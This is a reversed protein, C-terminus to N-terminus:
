LGGGVAGIALPGRQFQGRRVAPLRVAGIKATAAPTIEPMYVICLFGAEFGVPDAVGERADAAPVRARQGNQGRGGALAVAVLGLIRHGGYLAHRLRAKEAGTGVLEDGDAAAPNLRIPGVPNPGRHQVPHALLLYRGIVLGRVGAAHAM